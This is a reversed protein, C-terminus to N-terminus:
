EEGREKKKQQRSVVNRKSASLPQVDSISQVTRQWLVTQPFRDLAALQAWFPRLFPSLYFPALANSHKLPLYDEFCLLSNLHAPSSVRLPMKYSRCPVLPCLSLGWMSDM